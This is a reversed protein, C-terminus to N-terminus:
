HSIHTTTDSCVVSAVPVRIRSVNGKRLRM